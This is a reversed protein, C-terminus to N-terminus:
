GSSYRKDLMKGKSSGALISPMCMMVYQINRVPAVITVTIACEPINRDLTYGYILLMSVIQCAIIEKGIKRLLVVQMVLLAGGVITCQTEEVCDMACGPSGIRTDTPLIVNILNAGPM